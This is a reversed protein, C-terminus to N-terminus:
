FRVAMSAYLTRPPGPVYHATYLSDAYLKNTVNNANLRLMVQRSWAYEAFLDYTLYGPAVIGPPNRIPTQSSRGNVGGGIRVNELLQYTTFLSGSHRPTLSPREGVREGGPTIGFAAEDINAIPIWAYSLFLEWGPTIRGALDVELGTAHRAGSLIFDVIPQGEPSDRNRENYKTTQFVAVRSSMRGDFMEMKAGIEINRSKEPPANSGPLDYNYLEGSTNFSTGYSAYATFTDNPQWLVGPSCEEEVSGLVASAMDLFLVGSGGRV